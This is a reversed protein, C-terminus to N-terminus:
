KNAEKGIETLAHFTNQKTADLLRFAEHPSFGEDEVLATLGAVILQLGFSKDLTNKYQYANM